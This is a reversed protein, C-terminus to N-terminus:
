PVGYAQIISDIRASLRRAGKYNLHNCDQAEDNTYDHNGNMNADYFHVYPNRACLSDIWSVLEAFTARGPGYRGIMTTNKYMPNQPFNIILLHVNKSAASDALLSLEYLSAKVMSDAFDYDARDIIPQGWGFGTNDALDYGNPDVGQWQQSSFSAIASLVRSPLGTRYFNNAADLEYGKSDYLGNLRPPQWRNHNLFGPILDLVIAKLKPAHPLVYDRAIVADTFMESGLGAMNLSPTSMDAPSMGAHLPSSGIGVCEVELRRHWFLRIKKAQLIHGNWQIPLDYAGFWRYPNNEEAVASPDIWLTPYSLNKGTAVKLYNSDSRRVVYLADEGGTASRAIGVFFDPHNSWEPYDWHDYAAPKEYWSVVQNPRLNCIFVFAHLGYSRGILTSTGPYGFDLLLAEGPEALSPSMSLNCVQPNDDRGNHPTIFYFINTDNLQLDVLRAVPFSTGLFRGDSSLGGHFSGEDWLVEPTGSFSGNEIKIRCTAETHWRPLSNPSAGDTYVIFTDRTQPSVWFRPLYGQMTRLNSGASDFKQCSITGPGSFGESQSSFAVYSGDPSISPAFVVSDNGSPLILSGPRSPDISVLRRRDGQKVVVAFTIRNTGIFTFLDTKDCAMAITLSDFASTGKQSNGANFAGLVVRFGIDKQATFASTRYPGKRCSSRLFATGLRWSGGRVPREGSAEYQEQSLDNPGAPDVVTTDPYYVLWDNVWEAVNGAMDFLGYSNPALRGVRQSRDHSNVYYWAYATADTEAAPGDGWFYDSASGARCAYEWEAETPLRYGFRDYNIVLNELVWPCDPQDCRSSYSYVTDYGYRKSLRNCYLAADYWSVNYVPFSDGVDLAGAGTAPIRGVLAAYEGQTVEHRGMYFDHKMRVQHAPREYEQALAGTSGMTFLSDRARILVPGEPTRAFCAELNVDRTVTLILPNQNSFGIGRWGVFLMGSDPQATLRLTDGIQLITDSEMGQVRGNGSITLTVRATVYANTLPLCFLGPLCLLVSATGAACLISLSPKM